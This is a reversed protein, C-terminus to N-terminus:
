QMLSQGYQHYEEIPENKILQDKHGVHRRYQEIVQIERLRDTHWLCTLIVKRVWRRLSSSFPHRLLYFTRLILLCKFRLSFGSFMFCHKLFACAHFFSYRSFGYKNACSACFHLLNNSLYADFSQIALLRFYDSAYSTEKLSKKVNRMVNLYRLLFLREESVKSFFTYAYSHSLYVGCYTKNVFIPHKAAIRMLYDPDWFFDFEESFHPKIEQMVQRQFLVGTPVPFQGHAKMMELMGKGAPVYGEQWTSLPNRVFDGHSDLQVIGCASFAADPYTQVGKLATEYFHPLLYDDDSLLTFFPTDIRDFAYQYNAFMGRNESHRHYQVRKDSRLFSSMVEETEDGSANDYVHVQFNSYSQRLVSELARKLLLPRRYTTIVTTITM